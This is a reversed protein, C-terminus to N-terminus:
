RGHDPDPSTAATILQGTARQEMVLTMPSVVPPIRFAPVVILRGERLVVAPDSPHPSVTPAGCIADAEASMLTNIFTTLMTRLGAGHRANRPSSRGRRMRPRPRSSNSSDAALRRELEAIRECQAAIVRAQEANRESLERVLALVQNYTWAEPVAFV